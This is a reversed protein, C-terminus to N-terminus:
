SQRLVAFRAASRLLDAKQGFLDLCEGARTAAQWAEERAAAVGRQGALTAKGLARDRGLPKGVALPDGEVDLLDDAIQFAWGLWRGYDMLAQLQAAPAAALMAGVAASWALLAGTKMDQLRRLDTADTVTEAARLDLMQGGAMGALGSAATLRAILDVRVAPDPHTAPDALVAFAETLLADGALIATAEDFALHLAPRGRRTSADDMAPLDDHVLAYAHLMEVAAAVRLSRDAPVQLMTGGAIVLFARLRKGGALAAQRMAAALRAEGGAPAPLLRDLAEAVQAAAAALAAAFVEDAPQGAASGVASLPRNASPPTM